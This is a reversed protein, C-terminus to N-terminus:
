DANSQIRENIYFKYRVNPVLKTPALLAICHYMKHISCYAIRWIGDASVLLECIKGM